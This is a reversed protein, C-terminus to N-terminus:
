RVKHLVDESQRLDVKLQHELFEIEGIQFEVCPWDLTDGQLKDIIQRLSKQRQTEQRVIMQKLFEYGEADIKM